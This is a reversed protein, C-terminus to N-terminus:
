KKGNKNSIASASFWYGLIILMGADLGPGVTFAPMILRAIFSALWAGSVILTLLTTVRM